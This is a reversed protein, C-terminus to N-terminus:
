NQALEDRHIWWVQWHTTARKHLFSEDKENPWFSLSVHLFSKLKKGKDSFHLVIQM